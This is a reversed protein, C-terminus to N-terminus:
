GQGDPTAGALAEPVFGSSADAAALAAPAPKRAIATGFALIEVSSTGKGDPRASAIRSTELRVNFAANFGQREADAKMRLVAERRARDLLSEYASVRGGAIGRLTALFRKVDDPSVVVSGTVLAARDTHWTPPLKHLTVAPLGRLAAERRKIDQMHSDEAAAGVGHAVLLLLIANVLESV